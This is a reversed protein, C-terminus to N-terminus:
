FYNKGARKALEAPSLDNLSHKASSRYGHSAIPGSGTLGVLKKAQRNLDDLDTGTLLDRAFDPLGHEECIFGLLDYDDDM